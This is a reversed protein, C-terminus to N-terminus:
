FMQEFECRKVTLDLGSFALLACVLPVTLAKTDREFSVVSGDAAKVVCTPVSPFCRVNVSLDRVVM